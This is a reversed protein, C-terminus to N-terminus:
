SWNMASSRTPRELRDAPVRAEQRGLRVERREPQRPVLPPAVRVLALQPHGRHGVQRAALAFLRQAGELARPRQSPRQLRVDLLPERRQAAFHSTFTADRPLLLRTLPARDLAFAAVEQSTAARNLAAGTLRGLRAESRRRGIATLGAVGAGLLLLTGPEPVYTLTLTGFAALMGAVNTIVKTPTVLVLTGAGGPTLGNSGM